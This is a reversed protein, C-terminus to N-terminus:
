IGAGPSEGFSEGFSSGFSSDFSSSQNAMTAPPSPMHPVVDDFMRRAECM